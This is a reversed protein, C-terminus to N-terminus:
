FRNRTMREVEEAVLRQSLEYFSFREYLPKLLAHLVEVLNDRAQARTIQRELVVEYDACRRDDFLMRRGEIHTLLRGQLGLYRCRVLFSLDDGFLDALRGVYLIAEGVRWVPLTIDFLTGPKRDPLGDEEYGRLLVLQGAEDARWYDVHAPDRDLVREGPRGLWAEIAGDVIRPAYESRSLCVFPGWGTHKVTSAQRMADRMETLSGLPKGGLIEFGLEYHGHPFKAPDGEPLNAVLSTWRQRTAATFAKLAEGGVAMRPGSTGASGLVIARIADLMDERRNRVCRELLANWEQSDAPEESRPGPKRIYCARAAIVKDCGRSSIVPVTMGGPVHVFAHEVQTTPHVAFSLSCHIEPEAFRNIAQNVEDQTYRNLGPPRPLSELPGDAKQKCMGLVIVGGGHNALAIAAKALRARNPMEGLDLWSKYEASLTENPEILLKVLEDTPMEDEGTAASEDLYEADWRGLQKLLSTTLRGPRFWGVAEDLTPFIVAKGTVNSGSDRRSFETVHQGGKTRYIAARLVNQDGTVAEAEALVEGDFQLPREHGGRSLTFRHYLGPVKVRLKLTGDANRGAITLKPDAPTPASPPGGDRDSRM